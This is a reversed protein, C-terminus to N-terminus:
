NQVVTGHKISSSHVLSPFEKRLLQGGSHPFAFVFTAPNSGRFIYFIICYCYFDMGLDKMLKTPANRLHLPVSPLPGQHSRVCKKAKNYAM